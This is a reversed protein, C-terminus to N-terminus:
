EHESVEEWLQLLAKEKAKAELMIDVEYPETLVILRKFDEPRIFDAHAPDKMSRKGSSLHMKPVLLIHEWTQIVEEILRELEPMAREFCLEHHIDFCIPVGCEKSIALVDATHFTKDDNELRLYTRVNESLDHYAKIFTQKAKEKDGYAGGTHLIMDSGGIFHLFDAHYELDKIANQVVHEKPSNLVTYQGPHMSLRLDHAQQLQHIEDLKERLDTDEQWRWTMKPHTAFPIMDSSVRFFYINQEINWTIVKKLMEINSLTLEKIKEMGEKEMTILRCTRFTTPLTLNQCAYGMKM